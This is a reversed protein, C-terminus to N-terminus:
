SGLLATLEAEFHRRSAPTPVTHLITNVPVRRVLVVGNRARFVNLGSGFLRRPSIELLVDSRRLLKNEPDTELRVHSRNRPSIGHAAIKGLKTPDAGYWLSGNPIFVDWSAELAELVVPVGRLWHGEHARVRGGQVDFATKDASILDALAAQGIGLVAVVDEIRAWGAGDMALGSATGGRRLLWALRKDPRNTSGSAAREKEKTM